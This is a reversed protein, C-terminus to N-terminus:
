RRRLICRSLFSCSASNCGRRSCRGHVTPAEPPARARLGTTPSSRATCEDVPQATSSGVSLERLGRGCGLKSSPPPPLPFFDTYALTSGQWLSMTRLSTHRCFNSKRYRWIWASSCSVGIPVPRSEALLAAAPVPPPLAAAPPPALRVLAPAPPPLAPAPAPPLLLLAAEQAAEPAATRSGDTAEEAHTGERGHLAVSSLVVRGPLPSERSPRPLNNQLSSSDSYWAADSATGPGGDVPPHRRWTLM